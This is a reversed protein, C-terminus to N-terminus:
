QKNRDLITQLDYPIDIENIIIHCDDLMRKLDSVSGNLPNTNLIEFAYIKRDSGRTSEKLCIIIKRDPVHNSVKSIYYMRAYMKYAGQYPTPAYYRGGCIGTKNDIFEFHRQNSVKDIMENIVDGHLSENEESISNDIIFNPDFMDLDKITLNMDKHYSDM